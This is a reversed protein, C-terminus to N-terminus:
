VNCKIIKYYSMPGHPKFEVLYIKIDDNLKNYVNYSKLAEEFLNYWCGFQIIQNDIIVVRFM